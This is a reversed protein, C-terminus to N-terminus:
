CISIILFFCFMLLLSLFGVGDFLCYCEKFLLGLVLFNSPKFVTHLCLICNLTHLQM